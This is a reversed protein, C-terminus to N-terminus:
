NGMPREGPWWPPHFASAAGLVGTCYSGSSRLWEEDGVRVGLGVLLALHLVGRETVGRSGIGVRQVRRTVVSEFGCASDQRGRTDDSFPKLSMERRSHSVAQMDADNLHLWDRWM